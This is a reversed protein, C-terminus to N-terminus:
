SMMGRRFMNFALKLREIEKELVIYEERAGSFDNNRGMIELKLALDYVTDASFNGVSGKIAHPKRELAKSDNQTIADNIGILLKPYHDIFLTMLELLFEIDGEVRELARTKDFAEDLKQEEPAKTANRQQSTPEIRDQISSEIAEFLQEAQVPKSVYGDMGAELCLERDGKMAYATM